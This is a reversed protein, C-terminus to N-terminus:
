KRHPDGPDMEVSISIRQESIPDWQSPDNGPGTTLFQESVCPTQIPDTGLECDPLIGVWFHDGSGPPFERDIATGGGRTAFPLLHDDDIPEAYCVLYWSADGGSISQDFTSTSVKFTGEEFDLAPTINVQTPSHFADWQAAFQGFAPDSCVVLEGGFSM